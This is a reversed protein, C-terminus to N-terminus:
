TKERAQFVGLAAAWFLPLLFLRWPRGVGAAVLATAVALAVAFTVVGGRYRRRRGAPGINPSCDEGAVATAM